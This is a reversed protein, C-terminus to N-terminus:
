TEAGFTAALLLLHQCIGPHWAHKESSELSSCTTATARSEAAGLAQRHGCIYQSQTNSAEHPDSILGCHKHSCDRSDKGLSPM